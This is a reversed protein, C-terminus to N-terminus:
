NTSPVCAISKALAKLGLSRLLFRNPNVHKLITEYEHLPEHCIMKAICEAALPANILGHSGHALSVYLGSIWPLTEPDANPRRRKIRLADADLLAGILPLHDKSSCRFATRGSIVKEELANFLSKSFTKIKTLNLVHDDLIVNLHNKKLDFTAGVSHEGDISPSFYGDSCIICKLQESLRTSELQTVQGRVSQTVLHASQQFQKAEHANAIIVTDFLQHYTQDNVSLLFQANVNALHSVYSSTELRINPHTILKQCISKPKIWASNPFYLAAHACEIGAIKSAQTPNVLQAIEPTTVSAVQQIRALERENFGLQLMGCAQLISEHLQLSQYFKLSYLFASLAFESIISDNNLRPYLMGVPNGSAEDAIKLNREFLTVHVGRKAFQYAITCGAIGGGIIAVQHNDTM